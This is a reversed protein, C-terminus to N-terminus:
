IITLINKKINKFTSQAIIVTAIIPIFTGFLAVCSSVVSLILSVTIHLTFITLKRIMYILIGGGQEHLRSNDESIKKDQQYCERIEQIYQKEITDFAPPRSRPKHTNKRIDSKKKRSTNNIKVSKHSSFQKFMRMFKNSTNSFSFKDKLPTISSSSKMLTSQSESFERVLKHLGSLFRKRKEAVNPLLKLIYNNFKEKNVSDRILRSHTKTLQKRTVSPKLLKSM